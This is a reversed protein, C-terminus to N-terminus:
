AHDWTDRLDLGTSSCTPHFRVWSTDSSYSRCVRRTSLARSNSIRRLTMSALLPLPMAIKTMDTNAVYVLKKSFEGLYNLWYMSWLM